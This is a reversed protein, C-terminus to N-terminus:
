GKVELEYQKKVRYFCMGMAMINTPVAFSWTEMSTFLLTLFFVIGVKVMRDNLNHRSFFRFYTVFFLIYLGVGFFGYRLLPAAWFLDDTEIIGSSQIYFHMHNNPSAEFISGIGFPIYIPHELLYDFREYLYKTRYAFTGDVHMGRFSKYDLNFGNKIEDFFSNGGNRSFMENQFFDLILNQCLLVFIGLLFIKKSRKILAYFFIFAGVVGVLAGRAGATVSTYVFPIFALWKKPSTLFFVYVAFFLSLHPINRKFLTKFRERVFIDLGVFQLYYFVLWIISVVLLYKLTQDIEKISFNRFLLFVGILGWQRFVIFSYKPTDIGLLMTAFSHVGIFFYLWLVCNEVNLSFFKTKRSRMYSIVAYTGVAFSLYTLDFNTAANKLNFVNTVAAYLFIFSLARKKKIWFLIFLAYSLLLIM